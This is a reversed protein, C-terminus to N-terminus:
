HYQYLNIILKRTFLTNILCLYIRYFMGNENSNLPSIVIMEDNTTKLSTSETIQMPSM